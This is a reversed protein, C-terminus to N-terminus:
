KAPAPAIKEIRRSLRSKHRAGTNKHITGKKVTQDITKFIKPLLKKAEDKDQAEIFGRIKKIQTRLATKNKKNIAHRRQSRRRQRIASPHHAM